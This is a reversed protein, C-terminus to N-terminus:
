YQFSREVRIRYRFYYDNDSLEPNSPPKNSSFWSFCFSHRFLFVFSRFRRLNNGAIPKFNIEANTGFWTAALFTLSTVLFYCKKRQDM